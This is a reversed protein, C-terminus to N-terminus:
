LKRAKVRRNAFLGSREFLVNNVDVVLGLQEKAQAMAVVMDIRSQLKKRKARAGKHKRVCLQKM